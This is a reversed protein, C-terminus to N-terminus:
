ANVTGETGTGSGWAPDESVPHLQLHCHPSVAVSPVHGIVESIDSQASKSLAAIM